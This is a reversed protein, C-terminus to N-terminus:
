EVQRLRENHYRAEMQASQSFHEELQAIQEPTGFLYNGDIEDEDLQDSTLQSETLSRDSRSSRLDKPSEQTSSPASSSSSNSLFSM